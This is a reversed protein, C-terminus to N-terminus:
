TLKEFVSECKSTLKLFWEFNLKIMFSNRKLGSRRLIKMLLSLLLHLIKLFNLYLSKTNILYNKPKKFFKWFFVQIYSAYFIIHSLNHISFKISNNFNSRKGLKLRQNGKKVYQLKKPNQISRRVLDFNLCNRFGKFKRYDHQHIGEYQM